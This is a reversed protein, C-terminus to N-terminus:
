TKPYGTADNNTIRGKIEPCEYSTFYLKVDTKQTPKRLGQAKKLLEDELKDFEITHLIYSGWHYYNDDPDLQFFTDFERDYCICENYEGYSGLLVYIPDWHKRIANETVHHWKAFLNTLECRRNVVIKKYEGKPLGTHIFFGWGVSALIDDARHPEEKNFDVWRQYAAETDTGARHIYARGVQMVARDRNAIHKVRFNESANAYRSKASSYFADAALQYAALESEFTDKLQKYLGDLIRDIRLIEQNSLSRKEPEKLTESGDDAVPASACSGTECVPISKTENHKFLHASKFKWM